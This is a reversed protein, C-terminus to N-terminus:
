KWIEDLEIKHTRGAEFDVESKEMMKVWDKNYEKTSNDTVFDRFNLKMEKLFGILTDLQKQNKTDVILSTM